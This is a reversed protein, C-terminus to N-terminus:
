EGSGMLFAVAALYFDRLQSMVNYPLAIQDAYRVFMLVSLSFLGIFGALNIQLARLTSNGANKQLTKTSLAYNKSLFYGVLVAASTRTVVDLVSKEDGDPLPLFVCHIIYVTQIVFFVILWVNNAGIAKIHNSSRSLLSNKMQENYSFYFEASM